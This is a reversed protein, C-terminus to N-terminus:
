APPSAGPVTGAGVRHREPIGPQRTRPRLLRLALQGPSTAGPPDARSRSLGDQDYRELFPTVALVLCSGGAWSRPREPAAPSPGDELDAHGVRHVQRATSRHFSRSIREPRLRIDRVRSRLSRVTVGRGHSRHLHEGCLQSAPCGRTRSAGAWDGPRRAGWKASPDRAAGQRLGGGRRESRAAGGSAPWGHPHQVPWSWPLVRAARHLWLRLCCSGEDGSEVRVCRISPLRSVGGM